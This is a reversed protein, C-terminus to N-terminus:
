RWRRKLVGRSESAERDRGDRLGAASQLTVRARGASIGRGSALGGARGLLHTRRCPGSRATSQSRDAEAVVVHDSHGSSGGLYCGRGGCASALPRPGVRLAAGRSRGSRGDEKDVKGGDVSHGSRSAASGWSWGRGRGCHERRGARVGVELCLRCMCGLSRRWCHGVRGVARDRVRGLARGVEAARTEGELDGVLYAALGAEAHVRDLGGVCGRGGELCDM